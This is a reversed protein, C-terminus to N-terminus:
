KRNLPARVMAASKGPSRFLDTPTSSVPGEWGELGLEIEPVVGDGCTPSARHLIRCQLRNCHHVNIRRCFVPNDMRALEFILSQTFDPERNLM